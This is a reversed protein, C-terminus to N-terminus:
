SISEALKGAEVSRNVFKSVDLEELDSSASLFNAVASTLSNKVEKSLCKMPGVSFSKVKNAIPMFLQDSLGDAMTTLDKDTDDVKDELSLEGFREIMEKLKDLNAGQLKEAEAGDKYVKFTPM